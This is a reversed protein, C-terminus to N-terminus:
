EVKEHERDEVDLAEGHSTSTVGVFAAFLMVPVSWPGLVVKEVLYIPLFVLNILVLMVIQGFTSLSIAWTGFDAWFSMYGPMGTDSDVPADCGGQFLCMMRYPSLCLHMGYHPTLGTWKGVSKLVGNEAFADPEAYVSALIGNNILITGDPTLPAYLGPRTISGIKVVKVPKNDQWLSDGVQVSGAPIPNRHGQVHILHDRTLELANKKDTELVLQVFFTPEEELRHTFAYVPQYKYKGTRVVDGVQLDKMTVMGKDQVEVTDIASFCEFGIDVTIPIDGWIGDDGEDLRRRQNKGTRVMDGVKLDKMTVTGKDQVEVTDSASFCFFSTKIYDLGRRQKTCDDADLRRRGRLYGVSNIIEAMEVSDNVEAVPKDTNATPVPVRAVVAVSPLIWVLLLFIKFALTM